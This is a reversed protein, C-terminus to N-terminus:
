TKGLWSQARTLRSENSGARRALDTHVATKLFQEGSVTRGANHIIKRPTMVEKDDLSHVFM